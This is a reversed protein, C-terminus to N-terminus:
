PKDGEIKDMAQSFRATAQDIGERKEEAARGRNRIMISLLNHLSDVLDDNPVEVTRVPLGKQALRTGENYSLMLLAEHTACREEIEATISHGAKAAAIELRRLLAPPFRVTFRRRHTEQPLAPRGRRRREPQPQSTQDM